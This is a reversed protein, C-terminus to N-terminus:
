CQLKYHIDKYEYGLIKETYFTKIDDSFSDYYGNNLMLNLSLINFFDSKKIVSKTNSFEYKREMNLQFKPKFSISFLNECLLLNENIYIRSLKLKGLNLTSAINEKIPFMSEM